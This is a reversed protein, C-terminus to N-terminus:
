WPNIGYIMNFLTFSILSSLSVLANALFEALCKHSFCDNKHVVAGVYMSTFIETGTWVRM